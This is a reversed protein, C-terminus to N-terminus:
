LKTIYVDVRRSKPNNNITNYSSLPDGNDFIKTEILINNSQIVGSKLLMKKVANIRKAAIKRNYSKTGSRDTYGYLIVKINRVKKLESILKNMKLISEDKLSSENSGFYIDHVNKTYIEFERQSKSLVFVKSAM